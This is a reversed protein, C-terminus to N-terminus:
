GTQVRSRVEQMVRSGHTQRACRLECASQLNLWYDASTGFYRALRLAMDATLAGQGDLLAMFRDYCVLSCGDTASDTWERRSRGTLDRRSADTADYEHGSSHGYMSEEDIIMWSTLRTPVTKVGCSVCAGNIMSVSVTSDRDTGM